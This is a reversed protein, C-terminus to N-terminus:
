EAGLTLLWGHPEWEGQNPDFAQETSGVNVGIILVHEVSDLREVTVGAQTARDVADVFKVGLIRGAADFKAVLWRMRGYDEWEAEVHLKAGAPAGTLDVRVFSSGTPEVPEPAALRRARAPWPVHWALRPAPTISARDIGFRVFTDDLTSGQWLVDRLSVRLVDFPTPRGAWHWAGSSTRTPSLACLGEVLGGPSAGVTADLWGFFMAAGRDFATSFPDVIAREPRSQFAVIDEDGSACISTLQALVEAQAITSGRDLAPVLRWMSGEAVARAMALDLSCGPDTSRDVLAFSSARDFRARPDRAELFTRAGGDVGDVLYIRWTGDLNGDPPPAELAGTIVDWARDASELTALQVRTSTGEMAYACIPHRFSCAKRWSEAGPPPSGADIVPGPPPSDPRAQALADAGSLRCVALSALLALGFSGTVSAKRAGDVGIQCRIQAVRILEFLLRHDGRREIRRVGDTEVKWVSADTGAATAIVDQEDRASGEVGDDERSGRLGDLNQTPRESQRDAAPRTGPELIRLAGRHLREDSLKGALTRHRSDAHQADLSPPSGEDDHDLFRREGARQERREHRRGDLSREPALYPADKQPTVFTDRAHEYGALPCDLAYPLRNSGARGPSLGEGHEM